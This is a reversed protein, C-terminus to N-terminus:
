GGPNKRESLKRWNIRGGLGNKKNEDYLLGIVDRGWKSVLKEVATKVLAENRFQNLGGAGESWTNEVCYRCDKLVGGFMVHHAVCFDLDVLARVDEDFLMGGALRHVMLSGNINGFTKVGGGAWKTNGGSYAGALHYGSEGLSDCLLEVLGTPTVRSKDVALVRKIDDDVTAAFEFGVSEADVLAANLQRSKMPLEGKVGRVDKAGARRYKTVQEKPIYWVCGPFQSEVAPANASRGASIVYVQVKM